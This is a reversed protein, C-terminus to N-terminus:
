GYNVTLCLIIYEKNQIVQPVLNFLTRNSIFIVIYSQILSIFMYKIEKGYTDQIRYIQKVYNM